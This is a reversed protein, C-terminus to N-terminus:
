SNRTIIIYNKDNSLAGSVDLGEIRKRYLTSNVSTYKVDALNIKITDGVKMDDIRKSMSKKSKKMNKTNIQSIM